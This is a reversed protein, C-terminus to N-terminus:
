NPRTVVSFVKQGVIMKTSSHYYGLIGIEYGSESQRKKQFKKRREIKKNWLDEDEKKAM